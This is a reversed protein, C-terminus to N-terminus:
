MCECFKEEGTNEREYSYGGICIKKNLDIIEKNIEKVFNFRKIKDNIKGIIIYYRCLLYFNYFTNVKNITM